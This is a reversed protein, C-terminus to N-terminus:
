RSKAGKPQKGALPDGTQVSQMAQPIKAAGPVAKRRCVFYNIAGATLGGKSLDGVGRLLDIHDNRFGPGFPPNELVALPVTVNLSGAGAGDTGLVGITIFGCGAAHAPGCVLFVEYKTNPQGFELAIKLALNGGPQAYRVTGIEPGDMDLPGGFGGSDTDYVMSVRTEKIPGVIPM